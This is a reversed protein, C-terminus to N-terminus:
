SECRRDREERARTGAWFCVWLRFRVLGEESGSGRFCLRELLAGERETVEVPQTRGFGCRFNLESLLDEPDLDGLLAGEGGCGRRVGGGGSLLFDM